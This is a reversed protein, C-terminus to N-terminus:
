QMSEPENENPLSSQHVVENRLLFKGSFTVPIPTANFLNSDGIKKQASIHLHPLKSFSSNGVKAIFDGTEIHDGPKIVISGKKLNAIIVFVSDGYQIAIYNGAPKWTASKSSSFDDFDNRTQIVTGSCPSYVPEGYINFDEPRTPMIKRSENGWNNLKLVDLGWKQGNWLSSTTNIANQHTNMLVHNGGDAIYYNGDKLPFQLNIAPESIRFAKNSLILLPLNLFILLLSLSFNRWQRRDLSDWIPKNWSRHASHSVFFIFFLIYFFRLYYSLLSWNLLYFLTLLSLGVAVTKFFWLLWSTESTRWEWYLLLLPIAILTLIAYAPSTM